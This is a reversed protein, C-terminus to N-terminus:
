KRKSMELSDPQAIHLAHYNQQDKSGYHEDLEAHACVFRDSRADEEHSTKLEDSSQNIYNYTERWYM